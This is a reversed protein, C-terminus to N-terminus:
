TGRTQRVFAKPPLDNERSLKRLLFRIIQLSNHSFIDQRRIYPCLDVNSPLFLSSINKTKEMTHNRYVLAQDLVQFIKLYIM